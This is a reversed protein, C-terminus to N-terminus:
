PYHAYIGNESVVQIAQPQSSLAFEASLKDGPLLLDSTPSSVGNLQPFGNVQSASTYVGDFLYAFQTYNLGVTGSNTITFSEQKPGSKWSVGSITLNTHVEDVARNDL